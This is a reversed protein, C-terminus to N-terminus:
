IDFSNNLFILNEGLAAETFDYKSVAKHIAESCGPKISDHPEIMLVRVKPLWEEFNHTFLEREAGEIDLKLIDIMDKQSERLIESITISKITEKQKIDAEKIQFAFKSDGPNIIELYCTKYWIAAKLRKVNKYCNLNNEM